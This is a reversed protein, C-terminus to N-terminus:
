NFHMKMSHALDEKLIIKTDNKKIDVHKNQLYKSRIIIKHIFYNYNSNIQHAYNIFVLYFKM